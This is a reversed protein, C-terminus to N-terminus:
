GYAGYYNRKPIVKYSEIYSGGFPVVKSGRPVCTMGQALRYPRTTSSSSQSKLTYDKFTVLITPCHLERFGGFTLRFGARCVCIRM